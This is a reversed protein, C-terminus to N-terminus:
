ATLECSEAISVLALLDAIGCDGLEGPMRGASVRALAM